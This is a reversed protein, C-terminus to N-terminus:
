FVDEWETDKNESYNYVQTFTSHEGDLILKARRDAEGFRNKLVKVCIENCVSPIAQHNEFAEKRLRRITELDYTATKEPGVERGNEDKDYYTYKRRDEIATYSLGLFLDASYEITSTDRGSEMDATGTRNSTRNNATILFVVTNQTKAFDKLRFIVEKVGEVTDRNGGDILQLYDICVLPAPKGQATIRATESEMVELISDISNTVGDPNYVFHKAVEHKYLDSVRTIADRQADTWAYGRLVELADMDKKERKWSYRSISRALLQARDMEMNIYLVDHGATAMNEFIMQALATKGMGPAAGLMVLTRRIFGGGTAKDLDHIGTPIPEFDRRTTVQLLFDELMGEGTRKRLEAEREEDREAKIEQAKLQLFAVVKKAREPDTVFAENGDKATWYITAPDINLVALGAATMDAALKNQADRGPSRGDEKTPDNDLALIFVAEPHKKAEALLTGTNTTTGIGVVADAGAQYLSIADLEGECIIPTAAGSLAAINFLDKQRGQVQKTYAEEWENRPKEIMRATYTRATRPIIIRKSPEVKEGAKSHKWSACYGLNFREISDDTIGRGHLYELAEPSAKLDEHCQRYFSTYDKEAEQQHKQHEKNETYENHNTDLTYGARELAETEGCDWIIRLAGLTDEGKDTFCGRGAECIVRNSDPYFKLAGTGNRGTGSGCIPCCYMNKGAKRSRELHVFDMLPRRNIDKRANERTM